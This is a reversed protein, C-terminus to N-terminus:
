AFFCHFLRDIIAPRGVFPAALLNLAEFIEGQM